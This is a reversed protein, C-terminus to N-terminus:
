LGCEMSIAKILNMLLSKLLIQLRPKLYPATLIPLYQNHFLNIGHQGSLVM